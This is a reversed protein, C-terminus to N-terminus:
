RRPGGDVGSGLSVVLLTTGPTGLAFSAGLVRRTLWPLARALVGGLPRGLIGLVLILSGIAGASRPGLGETRELLTVVWNGLIVSFGFSM